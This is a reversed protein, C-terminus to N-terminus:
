RGVRPLDAKMESRERLLDAIERVRLRDKTVACEAVIWGTVMCAVLATYGGWAMLTITDWISGAVMMAASSTWLTAAVVVRVVELM